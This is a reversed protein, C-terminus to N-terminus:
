LLAQNYNIGYIKKFQAKFTADDKKAANELLQIRHKEAKLEERVQSATNGTGGGFLDNNWLKSFGDALDGAWGDNALQKGFAKTANAYTSKISAVTKQSQIQRTGASSKTLKYGNKVYSENLIVGEKARVYQKGNADVVLSRGNGLDKLKMYEKEVLKGQKNKVKGKVVDKMEEKSIVGDHNADIANFISKQTETKCSSSKQGVKLFSFEVKSTKPNNNVPGTM